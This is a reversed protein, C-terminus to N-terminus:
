WTYIHLHWHIWMLYVTSPMRSLYAQTQSKSSTHDFSIAACTDTYISPARQPSARSIKTPQARIKLHSDYQYNERLQNHCTADPPHQTSRAYRYIPWSEIAWRLVGGGDCMYICTYSHTHTDSCTDFIRMYAYVCDFVYIKIDRYM